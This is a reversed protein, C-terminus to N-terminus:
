HGFCLWLCEKWRFEFLCLLVVIDFMKSVTNLVVKEKERGPWSNREREKKIKESKRKLGNSKTVYSMCTDNNQEAKEMCEIVEKEVM